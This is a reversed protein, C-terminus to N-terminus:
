PQDGSGIASRWVRQSAEWVRQSAEFGRVPRCVRQSAELVDPNGGSDKAPRGSGKGLRRSESVLISAFTGSISSAIVDGHGASQIPRQEKVVVVVIKFYKRPM